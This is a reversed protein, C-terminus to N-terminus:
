KSGGFILLLLALAGLGLGINAQRSTPKDYIVDNCFTECNYDILNYPKGLKSLAKQVVAKRQSHNGRFIEKRTLKEVGYFFDKVRTLRVGVGIVNECMYHNGYVDCGLYLAHHQVLDWLSKPIVVRDGPSLKFKKVIQLELNM